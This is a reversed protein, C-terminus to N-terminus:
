NQSSVAYRYFTLEGAPLSRTWQVPRALDWAEAQEKERRWAESQVHWYVSTCHSWIGWRCGSCKMTSSKQLSVHCSSVQQFGAKVSCNQAPYNEALVSLRAKSGRWGRQNAHMEGAALLMTGVGGRQYEANVKLHGVM